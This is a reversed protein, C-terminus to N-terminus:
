PIEPFRSGYQGFPIATSDPDYPNASLSGLDEAGAQDVTLLATL